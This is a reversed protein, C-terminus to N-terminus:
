EEIGEPGGSIWEKYILQGTGINAKNGLCGEKRPDVGGRQM